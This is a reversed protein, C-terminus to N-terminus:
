LFRCFILLLWIRVKLFSFRLTYIGVSFYKIIFNRGLMQGLWSEAREIKNQLQMIKNLPAPSIRFIKDRESVISKNKEFLYYYFSLVAYRIKQTFLPDTKDIVSFSKHFEPDKIRGDDILIVLKNEKVYSKNSALYEFVDRGSYKPLTTDIISIDARAAFIIGLAELGNHSSLFEFNKIGINSKVSLMRKIVTRNVESDDAIVIKLSENKM